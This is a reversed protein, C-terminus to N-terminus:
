KLFYKLHELQKRKANDEFILEALATRDLEGTSYLEEGFLEIIQNAGVSGNTVVERAVADSDIVTAGLRSLLAGVTTKGSAIGGTLGVLFDAM